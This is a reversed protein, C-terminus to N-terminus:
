PALREKKWIGSSELQYRVRDHLRSPRGQWFEIEIPKVLYGGWNEPRPVIKGEFEESLKRVEVNLDEEMGIVKSQSSVLAGIQSEVPRKHFYDDSKSEAIKEIIGKLIIQQELKDWFFSLCVNQNKEIAKGKQSEYNTYFVLGEQSLERLLVIRTRPFGDEGITSLSMAYPEAILASETAIKYWVDFLELPDEPLNAFDIFNQSYDKRKDSLDQKM